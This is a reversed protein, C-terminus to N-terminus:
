TGPFLFFHWGPVMMKLSTTSDRLHLQRGCYIQHIYINIGPLLKQTYTQYNQQLNLSYKSQYYCRYWVSLELGVVVVAAAAAAAAVCDNGSSMSSSTSASSNDSSCCILPMSYRPFYPLHVTAPKLHCIHTSPLLVYWRTHNAIQTPLLHLVRISAKCIEVHRKAPSRKM